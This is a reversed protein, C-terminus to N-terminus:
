TTKRLSAAGAPTGTPVAPRVTLAGPGIMALIGWYGGHYVGYPLSVIFMGQIANTVNYAAEWETIKGKNAPDNPDFGDQGAATKSKVFDQAEEVKSKLCDPTVKAMIADKASLFAAAM